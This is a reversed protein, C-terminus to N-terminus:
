LDCKFEFLLVDVYLYNNQHKFISSQLMRQNKKKLKQDRRSQPTM